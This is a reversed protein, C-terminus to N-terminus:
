WCRPEAAPLHVQGGHEARDAAARPPRAVPRLRQAPVGHRHAAGGGRGPARAATVQFAADATVIPRCWAGPEALHACSQLVDLTALASAAARLAASQALVEDTLRALIAAERAAAREAAEAIRRDLEALEANSFRAATAMSQRLSLEPHSRLAETAAAPVEMVYGLQAHHRIKLSAVGYRQAFDLQLGTIVRRSDDRLRREADLEGDFGEAIAGGEERRGPPQEM